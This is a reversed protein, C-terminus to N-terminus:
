FFKIIILLLATLVMVTSVFIYRVRTFHTWQRLFLCKAESDKLKQEVLGTFDFADLYASYRSNETRKESDDELGYLIIYYIEMEERCDACNLIHNTFAEEDKLSLNGHEFSEIRSQIEKCNDMFAEMFSFGMGSREMEPRTTFLPEMAKEIDPIGCGTDKVSLCLANGEIHCSVTIKEVKGDYAHVICNTVAESVATKVDAVEELTPNLQTMFASVAVRIFGENCSRSDFEIKMENEYGM